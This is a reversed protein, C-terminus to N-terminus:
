SLVWKVLCFHLHIFFKPHIHTYAVKEGGRGKGGGREEGRRGEGRGERVRGRERERREGRGGRGEGLSRRLAVNLQNHLFTVVIDLENHQVAQNGELLHRGM